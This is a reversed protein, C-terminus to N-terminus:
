RYTHGMAYTNSLLFCNGKGKAEGSVKRRGAQGLLPCCFRGRCCCLALCEERKQLKCLQTLGHINKAKLFCKLYNLQSKIKLHNYAPSQLAKSKYYYNYLSQHGPYLVRLRSSQNANGKAVCAEPSRLHSCLRPLTLAWLSKPAASGGTTEWGYFNRSSRASPM